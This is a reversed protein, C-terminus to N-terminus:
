LSVREPEIQAGRDVDFITFEREPLSLIACTSRFEPYGYYVCGPNVILQDGVNAILPIHTHGLIIVDADSESAVRCFLAPDADPSLLTILDWTSAHTMHLRQGEWEFKLSPPLASLAAHLTPTLDLEYSREVGYRDNREVWMFNDACADADHNGQVTPIVNKKLLAVVGDADSGKDVLDGVCVIQDVNHARLLDLTKHLAVSDGHIDAIIGLKM